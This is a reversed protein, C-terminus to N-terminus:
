QLACCGGAQQKSAATAGGESQVSARGATTLSMRSARASPRPAVKTPDTCLEPRQLPELVQVVTQFSPRKEPNPHWCSTMVDRLPAPWDGQVLPRAGKVAEEAWMQPTVEVRAGNPQRKTRMFLLGKRSLLEWLVIAYSYQDVRENAKNSHVVEPAM